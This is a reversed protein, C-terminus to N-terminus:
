AGLTNGREEVIAKLVDVLQKYDSLLEPVDGVRLDNAELGTYRYSRM